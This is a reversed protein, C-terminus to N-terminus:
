VWTELLTELWPLQIRCKGCTGSCKNLTFFFFHKSGNKKRWGLSYKEQAETFMGWSVTPNKRMKQKRKKKERKKIEEELIGPIIQKIGKGRGNTGGAGRWRGM